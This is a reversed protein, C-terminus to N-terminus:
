IKNEKGYAYVTMTQFLGFLINTYQYDAYEAEKILASNMVAKVTADGGSFGWIGWQFTQTAASGERINIVSDGANVKLPAKINTYFYGIPPQFPAEYGACGTLSLLFMLMVSIKRM